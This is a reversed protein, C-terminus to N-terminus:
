GFKSFKSDWDRHVVCPTYAGVQPFLAIISRSNGLQILQTFLVNISLHEVSVLLM